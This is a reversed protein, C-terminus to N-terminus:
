FVPQRGADVNALLREIRKRLGKIEGRSLGLQIWGPAVRAGKKPEVNESFAVPRLIGSEDARLEALIGLAEIHEPTVQHLREITARRLAPVRIKNWNPVFFNKMKAGFSVGNDISFVRRDSEIESVLFNGERGDEHEILYTLLNM